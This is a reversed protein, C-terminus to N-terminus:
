TTKMNEYYLEMQGIDQVNQTKTKPKWTGHNWILILNIKKMIPKHKKSIKKNQNSQHRYFISSIDCKNHEYHAWIKNASHFM